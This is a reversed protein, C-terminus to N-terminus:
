LDDSDLIFLESNQKKVKKKLIPDFWEMKNRITISDNSDVLQLTYHFRKNKSQYHYVNPTEIWKVPIATSVIFARRNM